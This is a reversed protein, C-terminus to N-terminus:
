ANSDPNHNTDEWTTACAEHKALTIELAALLSPTLIELSDGNLDKAYIYSISGDSEKRGNGRYGYAEDFCAQAHNREKGDPMSDIRDMEEAADEDGAPFFEDECISYADEWTKARVIGSIGMSDRHIFLPGYGDDYVPVKIRGDRMTAGILSQSDNILETKM